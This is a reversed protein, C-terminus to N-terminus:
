QKKFKLTEIGKPSNIKIFYIGTPYNSVDMEFMKNSLQRFKQKVQVKGLVDFVMINTVSEVENSTIVKIFGSAPNPYVKAKTIVQETPKEAVPTFVMRPIVPTCNGTPDLVTINATCTSSNGSADTVTLITPTTTRAIWNSGTPNLLSADNNNGSADVVSTGSGGSFPYYLVLGSQNTSARDDAIEASSLSRNYVKVEDISGQYQTRYNAGNDDTEAGVFFKSALTNIPWGHSNSPNFPYAQNNMYLVGNSGDFTVAVYTWTNMPVVAPSIYDAYSGWFTLRNGSQLGIAFLNGNGNRNSEPALGYGIIGWNDHSISPNIWASITRASNGLPLNATNNSVVVDPTLNFNLATNSLDACTFTSKSLSM